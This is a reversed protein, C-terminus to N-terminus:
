LYLNFVVLHPTLPPLARVNQVPFRGWSSPGGQLVCQKGSNPLTGLSGRPTKPVSTAVPLGPAGKM